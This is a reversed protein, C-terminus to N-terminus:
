GRAAYNLYIPEFKESKEKKDKQNFESSEKKVLGHSCGFLLVSFIPIFIKKM